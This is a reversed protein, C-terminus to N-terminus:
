RRLANAARILCDSANNEANKAYKAQTKCEDIAKAASTMFYKAKDLNKMRTYYEAERQYEEAKKQYYISDHRYADAKLLYSEADRIYNRAQRANSDDAIPYM